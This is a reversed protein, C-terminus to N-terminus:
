KALRNKKCSVKHFMWDLKQCAPSCYCVKGCAGCKKTAPKVCKECENQDRPLAERVRVAYDTAGYIMEVSSRLENADEKYNVKANYKILMDVILLDTLTRPSKVIALPKIGNRSQSNPNAGYRLLAAVMCDEDALLANHLPTYGNIDHVNPDAGLELLKEMIQQHKNENCGHYMSRIRQKDSTTLNPNGDLDVMRTGIIPSFLPSYQCYGERKTLVKKLEQKSLLNVHDIFETYNGFYMDIFFDSFYGMGNPNVKSGPLDIGNCHIQRMLNDEEDTCNGAPLKPNEFTVKPPNEKLFEVLEKLKEESNDGGVQAICKNLFSSIDSKCRFERHRLDSVSFPLKDLGMYKKAIHKAMFYLEEVSNCKFASLYFDRLNM